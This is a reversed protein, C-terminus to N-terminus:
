HGPRVPTLSPTMVRSFLRNSSIHSASNALHASVCQQHCHATCRVCLSFVRISSIFVPQQQLLNESNSTAPIRPNQAVFRPSDPSGPLCGCSFHPLHRLEDTRGSRNGDRKPDPNTIYVKRKLRPRSRDHGSAVAERLTREEHIKM